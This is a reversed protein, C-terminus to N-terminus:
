FPGKPNSVIWYWGWAILGVAVGIAALTALNTALNTIPSGEVLERLALFAGVAVLYWGIRRKRRRAPEFPDTMAM